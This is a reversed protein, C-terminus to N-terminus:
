LSFSLGSPLMKEREVPNLGLDDAICEAADAVRQEGSAALRLVPRMLAQYDPVAM